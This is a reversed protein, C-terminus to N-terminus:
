RINTAAHAVDGSVISNLRGSRPKGIRAVELFGLLMLSVAAAGMRRTLGLPGGLWIWPAFLESQSMLIMAIVGISIRVIFWDRPEDADRQRLSLLLLPTCLLFYHLWVLIAALVPLACGIGIIYCVRTNSGGAARRTLFIALFTTAVVAISFINAAASGFSARILSRLSFSTTIPEDLVSELGHLSQWWDLWCRASGFVISSFIVLVTLTGVFIAAGILARRYAGDAVQTFLLVGALPLVNPKFAVMFAAFGAVLSDRRMSGARLALLLLIAIMALQIQSVNSLAIDSRLPESLGVIVATLLLARPLSFAFLRCILFVGGIGCIFSILKYVLLSREFDSTCFCSFCIYLVPTATPLLNAPSAVIRFHEGAAPSNALKQFKEIAIARGAASYIIPRSGIQLAPAWFQFFDIGDAQRQMQWDRSAAALFAIAALLTLVHIARFASKM